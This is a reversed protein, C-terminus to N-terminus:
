DEAFIKPDITYLYPLVIFPTLYWLNYLWWGYVPFVIDVLRMQSYTTFNWMYGVWAYVGMWCTIMMWQLGWRKMSLFGWAAATRMPFLVFVNAIEWAKEGPASTGGVALTNFQWFYGSDIWLGIGMVFTRVLLSHSALVDIAAGFTNMLGDVLVLCGVFTMLAPRVPLGEKEAHYLLWLGYVFSPIGFPGLVMTGILASGIMLHRDARKQIARAKEFPADDRPAGIGADLAVDSM